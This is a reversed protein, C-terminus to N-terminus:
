KQTEELSQAQMYQGLGQVFGSREDPSWEFSFAGTSREARIYDILFDYYADSAALEATIADNQADILRIIDTQGTRYQEVVVELNNRSAEAAQESLEVAPGTSGAQQFNQRVQSEIQQVLDDKETRLQRLEARTQQIEARRGTGEFFPVTLSVGMNWAFDDRPFAVTDTGIEIPDLDDGGEGGRVVTHTIGGTAVITPLYYARRLGTLNAETAAISADLERIEPTQALAKQVMFDRFVRFTYPNTILGRVAPDFIVIPPPGADMGPTSFEEELPRNMIRNLEVESQSRTQYASIVDIRNQAIESQWRYVEDVGSRGVNLRIQALSLNRRTRALNDRQLSENNKNRQVNLYAEAAELVLDLRVASFEYERARQLESQTDLNAYAEPDFLLQEGTLEWQGTRQAQGVSTAGDPDIESYSAGGEVTPVFNARSQWVDYEGAEVTIGAAQLSLNASLANRIAELLGIEPAESDQTNLLEAETLVEFRPYAGIRRATAMNIVLESLPEFDVPFESAPEGYAVRELFFAIRRFRRAYDSQPTFTAFAGLEVWRRGTSAITLIRRDALGALLRSIEQEPLSPLAAVYVADADEPVAELVAEATGGTWVIEAELDYPATLERVVRQSEPVADELYRELLVAVRRVPKHTLEDVRSLDDGLTVLGTLYALNKRGSKEGDRPLGQLDDVAFPLLVPKSFETRQACVAAAMAGFAVVVDTDSAALAEELARAVGDRSFDGVHQPTEPYRLQIAPELLARAEEGLHVSEAEFFEGPGDVVVGVSLSRQAQADAAPAFVTM